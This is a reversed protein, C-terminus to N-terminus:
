ACAGRRSMPVAAAPRQVEVGVDAEPADDDDAVRRRQRRQRLESPVPRQSRGREFKEGEDSAAPMTSTAM